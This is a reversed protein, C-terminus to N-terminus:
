GPNEWPWHPWHFCPNCSKIVRMLSATGHEILSLSPVVKKMTIKSSDSNEPVMNNEPEMKNLEPLKM